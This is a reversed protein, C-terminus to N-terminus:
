MREPAEFGLLDICTELVRKSLSLLAIYGAKKEEDTEEEEPTKSATNTAKALATEVAKAVIGEVEQKTM